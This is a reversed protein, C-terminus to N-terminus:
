VTEKLIVVEMGEPLNDREAKFLDVPDLGEFDAEDLFKKLDSNNDYGVPIVYNAGWKKALQLIAKSGIGEGNAIDVVMIDMAELKETKKDSLNEKLKGLIGVVLGDITVTYITTGSGSNYGNIEVGGVEYEGPGSIIVRENEFNMEDSQFENYIVIRPMNKVAVTKKPNVLISERKGKILLSQEGLYKIDMYSIKVNKNIRHPIM